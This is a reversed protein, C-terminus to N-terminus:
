SFVVGHLRIPATSTYGRAIKVEASSPPSHDTERGPRKVVLYNVATGVPCSVPRTGSVTQVLHRLSIIGNDGRSTVSGRDELRYGSRHVSQAVEAESIIWYSNRFDSGAKTFARDTYSFLFPPKNPDNPTLNLSCFCNFHVSRQAM